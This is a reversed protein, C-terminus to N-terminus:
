AGSDLLLALLERQGAVGLKRYVRKQYTRASALTLGLRAALAETSLGDMLAALVDHDRQTLAPFRRVLRALLLGSVDQHVAQGTHHLRVAHVILPAFAEVVAIAADDFPGHETGRYLNVSLWRRGEYLALVALREAVQPLEYCIRRYEPHVIDEGRQRHLVIRPEAMGAKQAAALEARMVAASGDLRHFRSVYAEAINPLEQTRSRDGVAVIAPRRGADFAFITCQALPLQAGVLRLLDEAVAHREAQGLRALLASVQALPLAISSAPRSGLVWHDTM